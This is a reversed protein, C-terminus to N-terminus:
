GSSQENMTFWTGYLFIFAISFFYVIDRLDIVGKAINNFHYDTSIHQLFNVMVGPLLPLVKGVIWFFICIALGIIFGVIQNKSLASAFMGVAAFASGLLITGLYGGIVPGPDLDGGVAVMIVYFLTPVLMMCIFAVVSLFKGVIIEKLSVPLTILIEWSGTNKEEAFLRMTIAPVILAFILPMWMFFQRMEAMGALYFTRVFFWGQFALFIVIVIYAIPSQFFTNFEKKFIKLHNKLKEM